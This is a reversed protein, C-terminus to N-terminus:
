EFVAKFEQLFAGYDMTATGGKCWIAYAWELTRGTLRQVVTSIRQRPTLEPFEALYLERALLFTQCGAPDGGYRKPLVSHHVSARAYPHLPAPSAAFASATVTMLQVQMQQTLGASLEEVQTPQLTIFQFFPPEPVCRATPITRDDPMNASTSLVRVGPANQSRCDKNFLLFSIKM